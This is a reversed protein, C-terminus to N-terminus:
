IKEVVVEIQKEGFGGIGLLFLEKGRHLYPEWYRQAKIQALATAATGLKFEIVYIASDLELVGDMRGKDSLVELNIEAGMLALIMYCLSHYYREERIHLNYPIRSFLNVLLSRFTETDKQALSRILNHYAPAIETVPTYTYAALLYNFLSNRVEHNPLCLNYLSEEGFLEIDLITLYGTQFLLSTTDLNELDYSDLINDGIQIKELKTIDLDAKKIMEILFTPTGTAFWYNSFRKDYFLNLLSTPNYVRNVGDWSYGNYWHKITASLEEHNMKRAKALEAIYERFCTELEEQTIGLLTAYQENLTIDKINNLGSFVSVKSFKSVGTLFVFQLYPDSGKLVAFFNRLIERNAQAKAMDTIHDIIPKDYEDILIVVRGNSSLKEILERFNDYFLNFRLSIGYAEATHKLFNGLSEELHEPTDHTIMSFDLHVVPHKKWAIKDYIYLGKFLERNGLFIEKLTSVLLSKGFRRPRSFFFYRGSTILRLIERTKDVYLQNDEIIRSFTQIGLPLM